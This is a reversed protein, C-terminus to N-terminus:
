KLSLCLQIKYQKLNLYGIRKLLRNFINIANFIYNNHLRVKERFHLISITDQALLIVVGKLKVNHTKKVENIFYDMELFLYSM